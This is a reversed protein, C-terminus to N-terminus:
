VRQTRWAMGYPVEPASKVYVTGRLWSSPKTRIRLDVEVVYYNM